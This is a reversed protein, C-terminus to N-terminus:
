SFLLSLNSRATPFISLPVVLYHSHDFVGGRSASDFLRNECLLDGLLWVHQLNLLSGSLLSSSNLMNAFQVGVVMNRNPPGYFLVSKKALLSLISLSKEFISALLCGKTTFLPFDRRVLKAQQRIDVVPKGVIRRLPRTQRCPRATVSM